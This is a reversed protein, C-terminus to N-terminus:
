ALPKGNGHRARQEIARDILGSVTPDVNLMKVRAMFATPGMQVFLRGFVEDAFGSSFVGVGQFDLTVSRNEGLSNKIMTRVRKGGRRSGFARRARDNMDFVPVGDNAPACEVGDPPRENRGSGNM